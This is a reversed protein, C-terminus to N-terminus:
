PLEGGDFIVPIKKSNIYDIVGLACSSSFYGALINIGETEVMRKTKTMATVPNMQDDDSLLEVQRGAVKYNRQKLALKFGKATSEGQEAYVGTFTNIIGIKIPTTKAATQAFGLTIWTLALVFSTIIIAWKWLSRRM